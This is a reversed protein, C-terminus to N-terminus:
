KNGDVPMSILLHRYFMNAKVRRGPAYIREQRGNKNTRFSVLM